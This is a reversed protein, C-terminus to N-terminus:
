RIVTEFGVHPCDHGSICDVSSVVASAYIRLVHSLCLYCCLGCLVCRFVHSLCLYCCVCCVGCLVICGVVHTNEFCPKSVLLLVCVM